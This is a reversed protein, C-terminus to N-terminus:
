TMGINSKEWSMESLNLAGYAGDTLGATIPHFVADATRADLGSKGHNLNSAM